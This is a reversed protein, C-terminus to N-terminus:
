KPNAPSASQGASGDTGPLRLGQTEPARTGKMNVPFDDPASVQYKLIADGIARQVKKQTIQAILTDAERTSILIHRTKVEEVPTPTPQPTSGGQTGSPQPVEPTRTRRDLVQIIHYGFESKVLDSTEGKKLSFAADAYPAVLNAKAMYDLEGGKEASLKDASYKKALEAFDEGAKVRKLVDEATQKIKEPDLDPKEAYQKKIEEPTPKLKEELSQRYLRALADARLMKLRTQLNPDKELGLKRAREARIKLEAWQTKVSEIEDATLGKKQGENAFKVFRDFDAAHDKVYKEREEKSVEAPPKGADNGAEAERRFAEEALTQDAQLAILQKYRDTKDIGEAQAALALAFTEKVRKILEKRQQADQALQRKAMEPFADTLATLDQMSIKKFSDGGFLNCAALGFALAATTVCAVIIKWRSKM